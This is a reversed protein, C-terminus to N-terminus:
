RSFTAPHKKRTPTSGIFRASYGDSCVSIYSKVSAATSTPIPINTDSTRLPSTIDRILYRIVIGQSKKNAPFSESRILHSCGVDLVSCGVDFHLSPTRQGKKLEM